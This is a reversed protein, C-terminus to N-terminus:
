KLSLLYAFLDRAQPENMAEILGEPMLSRRLYQGRSIESKAIRRDPLGPMRVVVADKDESVFFADLLDGSKLEVRYIRYGAEMAANPTLLNRLIAEAGMSGVGSLDPGISGGEGKFLHCASCIAAAVKGRAVDGGQTTLARFKSFKADLAYAEKATLIPPADATKAISAGRQLTGWGNATSSFILGPAEAISRDFDRAIEEASRARNWLRYEALMGRTGGKVGSWGIRVDAITGPSAKGPAADPQGDIFLQWRGAEDRVAALHTWFEPTIPKTAVIADRVVPGAYVRFKEEFFNIDLIGPVGLIGDANTLGPSLRVWTEVTLPGDFGFATQTWAEESGDLALVPRLASAIGDAFAAIAPDNGLIAILKEGTVGDIEKRDLKGVGIAKAIVKAGDRTAVLRELAVSRQRPELSGWLGLLREKAEPAKSAALAVLAEKRLAESKGGTILESFLETQGSGFSALARLASSAVVPEFDKVIGVLPGEVGELQFGEALQIALPIAAADNQAFLRMTADTLIPKLKAGDLRTRTALLAELVGTRTAPNELATRFAAGIGPVDPFQALRMVEEQGPARRLQPLLKAVRAASERPGLALSAILLSEIPLKEAAESDLFKAVDAPIKELFMRVLFREFEREYAQAIKVPKGGRSSPATPGAIPEEAISMLIGIARVRESESFGAGGNAFRGVVRTVEARVEPDPDDAHRSLLELASDVAISGKPTGGGGANRGIWGIAERRLNRNPACLLQEIIKLNLHEAGMADLAWMAAIAADAPRKGASGEEVVRLLDGAKNKMERDVLAQWALHSQALPERGLKAILEDGSLATFDPVEIRAAAKAKLRWIRGRTKDRDPHSRAVENHSIIKNYWDVIYICGDPGNTLAVPRFFPDDCTILDPLRSSNGIRPGDRHMALTQVKSHDSQGRVHM